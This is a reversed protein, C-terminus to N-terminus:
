LKGLDDGGHLKGDNEEMESAQWVRDAISQGIQFHYTISLNQYFYTEMSFFM